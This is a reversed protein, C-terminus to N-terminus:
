PKVGCTLFVILAVVGATLVGGLVALILLEFIGPMFVAVM